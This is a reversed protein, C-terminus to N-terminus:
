MDEPDSEEAIWRITEADLDYHVVAERLARLAREVRAVKGQPNFHKQKLMRWNENPITVPLMVSESEQTGRLTDGSSAATGPMESTTWVAGSSATGTALEVRMTPWHAPYRDQIQWLPSQRDELILSIVAMTEQEVGILPNTGLDGRPDTIM